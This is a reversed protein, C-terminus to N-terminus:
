NFYPSHKRLFFAMLKSDSADVSRISENWFSKDHKIVTYKKQRSVTFSGPLRNDQLSERGTVGRLTWAM